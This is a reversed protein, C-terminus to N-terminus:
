KKTILGKKGSKVPFYKPFTPILSMFKSEYDIFSDIIRWGDKAQFDFNGFQSQKNKILKM